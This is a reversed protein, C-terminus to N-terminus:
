KKGRLKITGEFDPEAPEDVYVVETEVLPEVVVEPLVGDAAKIEEIIKAVPDEVVDEMDPLAALGATWIFLDGTSKQRLMHAM